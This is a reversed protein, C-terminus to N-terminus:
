VHARGIQLDQAPHENNSSTAAAALIAVDLPSRIGTPLRSNSGALELSRVSPKGSADLSQHLSMVGATLTGTKDCCLVDISGLNQIAPLHKVIAHKRAMVIAGRSLTVSTIM